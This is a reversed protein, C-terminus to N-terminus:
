EFGLLKDIDKESKSTDAFSGGVELIDEKALAMVEAEEEPTEPIYRIITKGEITKEKISKM